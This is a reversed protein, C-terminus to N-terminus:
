KEGGSRNIEQLKTHHVLEYLVIGLAMSIDCDSLNGKEKFIALWIEKRLEDIKKPMSLVYEDGIIAGKIESNM